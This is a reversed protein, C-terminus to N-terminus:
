SQSCTNCDVFILKMICCVLTKMLLHICLMAPVKSAAVKCPGLVGLM